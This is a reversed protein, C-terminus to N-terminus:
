IFRKRGDAARYRLSVHAGRSDITAIATPVSFTVAESDRVAFSEVEWPGRGGRQVVTM